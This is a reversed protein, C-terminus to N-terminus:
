MRLGEAGCGEERLHSLVTAASSTVDTRYRSLFSQHARCHQEYFCKRTSRSKTISILGSNECNGHDNEYAEIMALLEHKKNNGIIIDVTNM